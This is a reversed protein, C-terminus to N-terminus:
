RCIKVLKCCQEGAQIKVTVNLKRRVSPLWWKFATRSSGVSLSSCRRADGGFDIEGFLIIPEGDRSLLPLCVEAVLTFVGTVTLVRSNCGITHMVKHVKAKQFVRGYLIVHQGDKHM